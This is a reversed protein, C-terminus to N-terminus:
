CCSSDSEKKNTDTNRGGKQPEQPKKELANAETSRIETSSILTGDAHTVCPIVISALPKLDNAKRAENILNVSKQTEASVVIADISAISDTGGFVDTIPVITVEIDRRVCHIFKEVKEKRSEFPELAERYQKASLLAEDAIGVHLRESSYLAAYTLLLKHGHHLHDFTGGVAVCSFMEGFLSPNIRLQDNQLGCNNASTFFTTPSGLQTTTSTAETPLVPIISLSVNSPLELTSSYILCAQHLFSSRKCDEITMLAHISCCPDSCETTISPKWEKHFEMIRQANRAASQSTSLSLLRSAM